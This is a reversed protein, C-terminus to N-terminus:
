IWMACCGERDDGCFARGCASLAEYQAACSRECAPRSRYWCDDAADQEAACGAANVCEEVLDLVADQCSVDCVPPTACGAEVRSQCDALCQEPTPAEYTQSCGALLAALFLLHRPM